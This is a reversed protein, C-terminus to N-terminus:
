GPTRAHNSRRGRKVTSGGPAKSDRGGRRPRGSGGRPGRKAKRWGEVLRRAVEEAPIVLKGGNSGLNQGKKKAESRGRVVRRRSSRM